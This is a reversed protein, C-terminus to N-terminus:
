GRAKAMARKRKRKPLNVARNDRERRFKALALFDNPPVGARKWSALMAKGYEKRKVEDKIESKANWYDWFLNGFGRGGESRYVKWEVEITKGTEVDPLKILETDGKRRKPNCLKDFPVYSGCRIRGVVKEAAERSGGQAELYETDTQSRLVYERAKEILQWAQALFKEPDLNEKELGKANAKKLECLKVSLQAVAFSQEFENNDIKRVSPWSPETAGNKLTDKAPIKMFM